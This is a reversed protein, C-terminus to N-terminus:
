PSQARRYGDYVFAFSLLLTLLIQAVYPSVDAPSSPPAYTILDILRGIGFGIFCSTSVMGRFIIEGSSRSFVWGPSSFRSSPAASVATRGEVM